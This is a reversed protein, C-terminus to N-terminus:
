GVPMHRAAAARLAKGPRSPSVLVSLVHLKVGTPQNRNGVKILDDMARLVIEITVGATGGTIDAAETDALALHVSRLETVRFLANEVLVMPDHVVLGAPVVVLWRRSLLHFRPAVFFAIAAGIAALVVGAIWKENALLAVGSTAAAVMVLWTVVMPVIYPVPPKLPFREEAGYASGQALAAGTEGSFWVVTALLAGGIAIAIKWGAADAGVAAIIAVVVAIPAALRGVTLSVTSPVLTALLVMAWKSWLVVALITSGTTTLHMTADDLLPLFVFPQVVWTLRLIWLSLSAKATMAPYWVPTDPTWM